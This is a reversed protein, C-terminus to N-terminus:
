TLVAITLLGVVLGPIKGVGTSELQTSLEKEFEGSKRTRSIIPLEFVSANVAIGAVTGILVASAWSDAPVLVALLVVVLWSGTLGGWSMWLAQRVSGAQMDFNFMFFYNVPKRAVKHKSGSLVAGSYHGWEHAISAVVTGAIYAAAIAVVSALLWGSAAAWTHAAGFLALASVVAVAHISGVQKLNALNRSRREEPSLEKPSLEDQDPVGDTESANSGGTAEADPAEAALKPETEVVVAAVTQESM